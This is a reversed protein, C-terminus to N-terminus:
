RRGIEGPAESTAGLVGVIVDMAPSLANPKVRVASSSADSAAPETPITRSGKAQDAPSECRPRTRRQYSVAAVALATGYGGFSFGAAAILLAPEDSPMLNTTLLTAIVLLLIGYLALTPAILWVPTLPLARPVRRGALWLTCRPLLMGWPRDLGLLLFVALGVAILILVLFGIPPRYGDPEIGSVGLVGLTHASLYVLFACCGAYAVRRIRAPAAHPGPHRRTTWQPPHHRGCRLCAGSSHRHWTVAAASFLMGTLLFGLRQAFTLWNSNGDPDEVRGTLVLSLLDLLLWCSAALAPAAVLWLGATVLGKPRTAGALVAGLALVAVAPWTLASVGLVPRDDLLAAATLALAYLAAWGASLGTMATYGWTVSAPPWRSSLISCLGVLFFVLGWFELPAITFHLRM